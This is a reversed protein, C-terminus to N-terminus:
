EPEVTFPVLMHKTRTHPVEAIWAYEGPEFTATLYGVSGAPMENVGGLFTAPAPVQLGAPSSWDMWAALSDLNANPQLKLLHVDHGVFNEHARQDAFHVAVTQIGAVPKGEVRIGSDASITLSVDARPEAAGSAPATVTFQHVMGWASTDRNFSHFTGGSKVYCELLYTGPSLRITSQSTQGPGTLGPGGMFVVQQFWTPLRGFAAMASDPQGAILRDMGAQFVPAVEKQQRAADVGEPLREVVAFHTVPSTNHFRITVWGAPVTDPAEFSLGTAVVNMTGPQDTREAASRDACGLLPLALLTAALTTRRCPM